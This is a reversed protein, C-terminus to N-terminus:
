GAGFLSQVEQAQMSSQQASDSCGRNSKSVLVAVALAQMSSATAPACPCRWSLRM